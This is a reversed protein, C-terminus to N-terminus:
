RANMLLRRVRRHRGTGTLSKRGERAMGNVGENRRSFALGNTIFLTLSFPYRYTPVDENKEFTENM